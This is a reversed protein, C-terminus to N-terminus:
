PLEWKNKPQLCICKGPFPKWNKYIRLLFIAVSFNVRIEGKCGRTSPVNWTDIKEKAKEVTAMKKMFGSWGGLGVFRANCYRGCRLVTM